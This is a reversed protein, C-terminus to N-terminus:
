SSSVSNKWLFCNSKNTNYWFPLFCMFFSPSSLTMLVETTQLRNNITYLLYLLDFHSNNSFQNGETLICLVLNGLSKELSKESIFQYFPLSEKCLWFCRVDELMKCSRQACHLASLKYKIDFLTEQSEFPRSDQWRVEVLTKERVAFAWVVLVFSLRVRPFTQFGVKRIKTKHPDSTM